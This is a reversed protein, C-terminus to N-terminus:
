LDAETDEDEESDFEEFEADEFGLQTLDVVSSKSLTKIFKMTQPPLSIKFIHPELKSFDPLNPDENELGSVDSIRQRLRDKLAVLAVYESTSKPKRLRLDIGKIDAICSEIITLRLFEKEYKRLPTFIEEAAKLDRYAQPVSIPKEKSSQLKIFKSVTEKKSRTNCYISFIVEYRECLELEKSSLVRNNLYYAEIRDRTTEVAM